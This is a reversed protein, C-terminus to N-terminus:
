FLCFPCGSVPFSDQPGLDKPGLFLVPSKEERDEQRGAYGLGTGEWCCNGTLAENFPGRIIIESKRDVVEPLAASSKGSASFTRKDGPPPM